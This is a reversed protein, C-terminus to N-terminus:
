APPAAVAGGQRRERQERARELPTKGKRTPQRYRDLMQQVDLLKTTLVALERGESCTDIEEALRRRLRELMAVRDDQAAATSLLEDAEGAPPGSEDAM